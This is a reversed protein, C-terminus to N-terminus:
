GAVKVAGTRVIWALFGTKTVVYEKHTSSRFYGVYFQRTKDFDYGYSVIKRKTKGVSIPKWVDGVALVIETM